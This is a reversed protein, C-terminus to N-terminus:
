DLEWEREAIIPAVIDGTVEFRGRLRGLFSKPQVEVPMLRAVPKRHKTIILPQRTAAVEDMLRLCEAKFKSAAITSPPKMGTM